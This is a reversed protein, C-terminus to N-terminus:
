RTLRLLTESVMIRDPTVKVRSLARQLPDYYLMNPTMQRLQGIIDKGYNAGADNFFLLPENYELVKRVDALLVYTRIPIQRGRQHLYAWDILTNHIERKLSTNGSAFTWWRGTQTNFVILEIWPWWDIKSLIKHPYSRRSYRAGVIGYIEVDHANSFRVLHDLVNTSTPSFYKSPRLTSLRYKMAAYQKEEDNV